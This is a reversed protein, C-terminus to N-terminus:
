LTRVLRAEDGRQQEEDGAEGEDRPKNIEHPLVELAPDASEDVDNHEDHGRSDGYPRDRRDKAPRDGGLVSHGQRGPEVIKQPKRRAKDRRVTERHEEVGWVPHAERGCHNTGDDVGCADAEGKLQM